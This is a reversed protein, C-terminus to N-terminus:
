NFRLLMPKPSHTIFEAVTDLVPPNLTPCGESQIPHETTPGTPVGAWAHLVCPREDFCVVPFRPDYLPKWTQTCM